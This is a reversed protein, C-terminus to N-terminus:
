LMSGFFNISRTTKSVLYLISKQCNAFSIAVLTLVVNKSVPRSLGLSVTGLKEKKMAARFLRALNLTLSRHHPVTLVGIFLSALVMVLSNM